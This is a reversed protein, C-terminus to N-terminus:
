LCALSSAARFIMARRLRLGDITGDSNIGNFDDLKAIVKAVQQIGIVGPVPQGEDLEGLRRDEVV